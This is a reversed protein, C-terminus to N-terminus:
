NYVNKHKKLVAAVLNIRRIYEADHTSNMFGRNYHKLAQDMDNNSVVLWNKIENAALEMSLYLNDKLARCSVNHYIRAIQMAGCYNDNKSDILGFRTEVAAVTVLVDGLGKYEGVRKAMSLVKKQEKTMATIDEKTFSWSNANATNVLLLIVTAIILIYKM